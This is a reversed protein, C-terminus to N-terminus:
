DRKPLRVEQRWSWDLSVERRSILWDDGSRQLTDRYQLAMVEDTPVGKREFIHHAQCYTHTTATDGDVQVTQGCIEHRTAILGTVGAIVGEAIADRGEWHAPQGPQAMAPDLVFVAEPTFLAALADVDRRDVAHAYRVAPQSVTM